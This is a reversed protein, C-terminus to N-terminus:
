VDEGLVLGGCLDAVSTGTMPFRRTMATTATAATQQKRIEMWWNPGTCDAM